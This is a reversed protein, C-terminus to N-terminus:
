WAQSGYYWPGVAFSFRTRHKPRKLSTARAVSPTAQRMLAKQGAKPFAYVHTSYGTPAKAPYMVGKRPNPRNHQPHQPNRRVNLTGAHCVTRDTETATCIFCGGGEQPPMDRGSSDAAETTQQPTLICCFKQVNNLNLRLIHGTKIHAFVILFRFRLRYETSKRKKNKKLIGKIL